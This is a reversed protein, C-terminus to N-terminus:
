APAVAFSQPREGRQHREWMTTYAAETHGTFRRTDFLPFTERNRALKRKLAAHLDPERAIRLALAEYDELSTTILEPLGIAKLLSAAVRGAFTTGLSTLVPVGAWLSDSATTHANYPLTDLTLDAHRHRALHEAAPVHPAFVLREPEVGRRKAELRLNQVASGNEEFLWLVSGEIQRLLRMWIDFIAPRIKYSNNFCCFVFGEDPLSLEARSPTQDAIPRARDNVQYSEPLWVIKESYFPAHDAPIVTEDALIYDMYSAAMTGPYGLYAVQIPAPRLAFIGARSNTTYGKLDVAIDIELARLREAIARNTLSQADIFREFAGRLRQRMDDSADPGFSVATTEFRSRDHTEFWGAALYATAHNQFDASLYAIRIREHRYIEGRWISPAAPPCQDATFIEAARLQVAPSASIALMRFPDTKLGQQMVAAAVDACEAELDAWDCIQLKAALRGTEAYDANLARAKDYAAIAEDYRKLLFALRGRGYWAGPLDARLALARDYAALADEYRHLQQLMTARGLQAEALKPDLRLARDYSDLAETPRELEALVNGHCNWALPYGPAAALAANCHTLAEESRRLRSLVIGFNVHALASQPALALARQFSAMAGANDGLESQMRGLNILADASDPRVRLAAKLRRAGAAFDGRQAEIVGLMHLADFQKRDAELVRKCFLEAQGLDGAQFAALARALTQRQSVLTQM